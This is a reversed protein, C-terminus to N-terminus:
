VARMCLAFGDAFAGNSYYAIGGDFLFGWYYAEPPGGPDPLEGKRDAPLDALSMSTWACCDDLAFPEVISGRSQADHLSRLADLDPLRWDDFGGSALTECFENAEAWPVAASTSMSWMHDGVTVTDAAGSDQAESGAGVALLCVTAALLRRRSLFRFFSNM